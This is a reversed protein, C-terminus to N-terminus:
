GGFRRRALESFLGRASSSRGHRTPCRPFPCSAAAGPVPLPHALSVALGQELTEGAELLLSGRAGESPLPDARFVGSDSSGALLLLAISLEEVSLLQRCGM